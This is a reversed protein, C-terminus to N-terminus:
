NKKRSKEHLVRDWVINTDGYYIHGLKRFQEDTIISHYDENAIQELMNTINYKYNTFIEKNEFYWSVLAHPNSKV